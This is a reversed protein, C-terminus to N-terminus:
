YTISVFIQKWYPSRNCELVLFGDGCSFSLVPNTVIWLRTVGHKHKRKKYNQSKTTKMAKDKTNRTEGRKEKTGQHNELGYTKGSHRGQTGQTVDLTRTEINTDKRNVVRGTGQM